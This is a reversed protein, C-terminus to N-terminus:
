RKALVDAVRRDMAAQDAIFANLGALNMLSDLAITHAGLPERWNDLNPIKGQEASTAVQEETWRPLADGCGHAQFHAAVDDPTFADLDQKELAEVCNVLDSSVYWLADVGATEADPGPEITPEYAEETRDALHESAHGLELFGAAAKPPM